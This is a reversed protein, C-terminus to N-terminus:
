EDNFGHSRLLDNLTYIKDIDQLCYYLKESITNCTSRKLSAYDVEINILDIEADEMALKQQYVKRINNEKEEKLSNLFFLSDERKQAREKDDKFTIDTAYSYSLIYYIFFAFLIGFIIPGWPRLFRRQERGELM